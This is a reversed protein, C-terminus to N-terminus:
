AVLYTGKADGNALDHLWTWGRPWLSVQIIASFLSADLGDAFSTVRSPIVSTM